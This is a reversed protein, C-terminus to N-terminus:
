SRWSAGTSTRTSSCRTSASTTRSSTPPSSRRTSSCTARRTSSSASRRRAGARAGVLVGLCVRLWGRRGSSARAALAFLLAFPVYFFVVHELAHDFDDLLGVPARLARAVAPSRGSSRARARPRGGARERGPWGRCPTPWRARRRRRPLAARAPERDLRGLAIPVRFPLTASPPSAAALAPRRDFLLALAALAVVAACRARRPALSPHDRLPEVQDSDWIHFVLIVPTLSSRASCRAVRARAAGRAVLAGAALLAALILPVPADM